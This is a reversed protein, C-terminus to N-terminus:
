NAIQIGGNMHYLSPSNKDISSQVSQDPNKTAKKCKWDLQGSKILMKRKYAVGELGRGLEEAVQADTYGELKMNILTEIEILKWPIKIKRRNLGIRAARKLISKSSRNLTEGIFRTSKGADWYMKLSEDEKFTWKEAERKPKLMHKKRAIDVWKPEKGLSNKEFKSWKIQEQNNEAWKWFENISIRWFAKEKALIKKAAKLGEKDIWRHITKRDVGIASALQNANLLESAVTIGGLGLRKAKIIIADESKQLHKAITKVTSTGFKNELYELDEKTWIRRSKIGLKIFLASIYTQSVNFIEAIESQTKEQEFYLKKLIKVDIM